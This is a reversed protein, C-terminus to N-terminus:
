QQALEAPTPRGMYVCIGNIMGTVLKDQYEPSNLLRDERANTLYGLEMLMSPVTSWNLGTYTDSYKVGHSRAGTELQMADLILKAAAASEAKCAGTERVYIMMGYRGSSGGNCHIRLVLDVGLENMMKARQQNSINVDATTRTMYVEAGLAELADRLKLGIQLNVVHEPVHTVTGGTGSSVKAKTSSSTPSITERSYDPKAQHGPDIGIKVGSLLGRVELACSASHGNYTEATITCTGMAVPTIAGSVADVIAIGPDSSTYRISGVGDPLARATLVCPASSGLVVSLETQDLEIGSPEPVVNLTCEASLGSYSVATLTTSGLALGTVEDGQASAVDADAVSLSYSECGHDFAADLRVSDNLAVAYSEQPFFMQSPTEGVILDCVAKHGNYTEVHIKATGIGCLTVLGSADVTAVSEDSSRFACRGGEGEAGFRLALQVSGEDISRMARNPVLEVRTPAMLVTVACSSELDNYSRVTITAAGPAVAHVLGSADVSAVEPDTSTWILTSDQGEPMVAKLAMSDGSGLTLQSPAIELSDPLPPVTLTLTATKGNYSTATITATGASLARITRGDDAIAAVAPDSSTMSYNINAPTVVLKPAHTEGVCLYLADREFAITKPAAVIRVNISAKKGNYTAVTIRVTGTRKATLLGSASVSLRSSSSSYKLTASAPDDGLIQPPLLQYSDGVALTVSSEQFAVGTPASHVSLACEATLGNYTEVRLTTSGTAVATIRGSSADITAIAPDDSTFSCKGASGESLIAAMTYSEGVGMALQPASMRVDTPADLVEIACSARRNNYTCVTITASGRGVALVGGNADVTVVAEDSSTFQMGGVAGSNLTATLQLSEGVGLRAKTPNLKISRPASKVVVSLTATCGNHSRFTLTVRGTRVGTITDDATLRAYRTSFSDISYSGACDEGEEGLYVEPLALKEGVGLTMSTASLRICSPANKVTVNCLAVCGNYTEVRIVAEGVALATLRGTSADVEVISPDSSSYSRAGFNEPAATSSLAYTEGVGLTLDSANLAISEPAAHVTLRLVASKGNFTKCRIEASGAAVATVNGDADVTAVAEDSSSWSIVSVSGSNLKATASLGEGPCLDARTPQITITRPASKVVVSLTATCGNHSRFTLTVRGTRVGTITDDATLRAYRTSFSDISYSGACDEGEEGLYVEPLALKEGVGLTMSTASLRICSPANKVTVNCLAVCGNYTEVRIVAEGVALATLRGTSADVEVISPDSSSYSRAGFNEPAATSSLAYTEGVGLTLDSANLAISEPAAHVTLRLVASKGNFTKCRIEASGAAVATVNGDADVTAVAEDSSSWSIVSTSGSSLKATASLSEGPCLDARTPQITISWPARLVNVKVTATQGFESTVTITASKGYRVGQVVGDTVKVYSAKSSVCSYGHALGDSFSVPLTCREGAGLTISTVGLQMEPINQVVPAYDLAALPLASDNNFFRDAQANAAVFSSTEDEAMPRLQTDSIWVSIVGSGGDFHAKLRDNSRASVYVVGGSVTLEPATANADPYGEAVELLKAYGTEFSPSYHASRTYDIANEEPDLSSFLAIPAVPDGADPDSAVPDNAVPNGANPDGADPDNADPDGADPDGANPDPADPDGANPDGADPDGADPDGADPDNADSDDDKPPAPEPDDAQAAPADAAPAETQVSPTDEAIVPLVSGSMLLLCLLLALIRRFQKM